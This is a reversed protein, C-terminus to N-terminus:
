TRYLLIRGCNACYVLKQGQRAEREVALTQDVGCLTCSTGSMPAVPQNNKTKRLSDYIKLDDPAIQTLASKRREQLQAVQFGLDRLEDILHQHESEWTQTIGTLAEEAEKLAAEAEEAAMMTELLDNELDGHRKKLSVIEHEMDQMEKPNKVQGSYLHQETSRAKQATSQMELDLNRAKTQLPTLIKHASAVRGQAAQVVESNGLATNVEHLRKRARIIHLDIEQLRYLAEAQSM